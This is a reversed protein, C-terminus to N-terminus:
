WVSSLATPMIRVFEYRSQSCSANSDLTQKTVLWVFCLVNSMTTITQVNAHADNNDANRLMHLLETAM